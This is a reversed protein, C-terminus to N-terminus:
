KAKKKRDNEIVKILTEYIKTTAEPLGKTKAQRSMEALREKDNIFHKITDHLYEPTFDADDCIVAAGIDALALANYYQHNDSAYPYPILISPKGLASLESCTTAGSRGIFLDASAMWLAGDFIYESANIHPVKSLKKCIESGRRMGTSITLYLNPYTDILQLWKESEALGQVAENLTSSGLSGGMMVIHFIDQALSIEDRSGSKTASFFMPSIPNGTLVTATGERFYQRSEEFSICVAQCRHGFLRNSRGPLANQEHLLVPIKMMLGAFVLPSGVYSGTSVVIDPRIEKIYKICQRIGSTNELIWRLKQRNKNPLVKARIYKFEYGSRRVIEEELSERLGCFVIEVNENKAKSYDAITIAPNIHGSTGGAGMMIKLGKNNVENQKM